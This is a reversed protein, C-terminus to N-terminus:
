YHFRGQARGPKGSAISQAFETLDDYYEYAVAGIVLGLVVIAALILRRDRGAGSRCPDEM